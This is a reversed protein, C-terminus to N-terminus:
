LPCVIQFLPPGPAPSNLGFGTSPLLGITSGKDLKLLFDIRTISDLTINQM